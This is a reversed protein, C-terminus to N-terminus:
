LDDCYSLGKHKSYITYNLLLKWTNKEAVQFVKSKSLIVMAASVSHSYIYSNNILWKIGLIQM